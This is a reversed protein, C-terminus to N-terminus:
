TRVHVKSISQPPNMTQPPLPPCALPRFGRQRLCSPASLGRGEIINLRKRPEKLWRIPCNITTSGSGIAATTLESCHPNRCLVPLISRAEACVLFM